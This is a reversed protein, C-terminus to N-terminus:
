LDEGAYKLSNLKIVHNHTQAFTTTKNRDLLIRNIFQM